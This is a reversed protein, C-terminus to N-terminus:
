RKRRKKKRKLIQWVIFASAAFVVIIMVAVWPNQVAGFAQDLLEPNLLLFCIAVTLIAIPLIFSQLSQLRSVQMSEYADWWDGFYTVVRQVKATVRTNLDGLAEKLGEMEMYDLVHVAQHHITEKKDEMRQKQSENFALKTDDLEKRLSVMDETVCAISKGDGSVKAEAVKCPNPILLEPVFYKGEFGGGILRFVPGRSGHKINMLNDLVPEVTLADWSGCPITMDKYETEGPQMNVLEDWRGFYQITFENIVGFEAYGPNFEIPESLEFLKARHGTPNGDNDLFEFTKKETFHVNLIYSALKKNGIKLRALRIILLFHKFPINKQQYSVYILIWGGFFVVFSLIGGVIMGLPASEIGGFYLSAFMCGILVGASAFMLIIFYKMEGGFAGTVVSPEDSM